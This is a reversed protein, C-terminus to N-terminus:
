KKKKKQKQKRKRKKFFFSNELEVQLRGPLPQRDTVDGRNAVGHLGYKVEHKFEHPLCRSGTSEMPAEKKTSTMDPSCLIIEHATRQHPTHFPQQILAKRTM